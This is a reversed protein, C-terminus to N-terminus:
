LGRTDYVSNRKKGWKVVAVYRSTRRDCGSHVGMDLLYGVGVETLNIYDRVWLLCARPRHQKAIDLPESLTGTLLSTAGVFVSLGNKDLGQLVTSEPERIM